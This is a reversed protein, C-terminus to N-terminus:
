LLMTISIMIIKKVRLPLLDIGVHLSLHKDDRAALMAGMFGIWLTLHRVYDTSGTIGVIGIIRSITEIIPFLAMLFLGTVVLWNEIGHILRFTQIYKNM